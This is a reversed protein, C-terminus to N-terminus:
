FPFPWILFVLFVFSFSVLLCLSGFFVVVCRLGFILVM